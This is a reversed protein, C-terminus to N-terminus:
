EERHRPLRWAAPFEDLEHREGGFWVTAVNEEPFDNLRLECATGAVTAAFHFPKGPIPQWDTAHAMLEDMGDAM